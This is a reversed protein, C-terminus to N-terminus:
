YDLYVHGLANYRTGSMSPRSYGNASLELMLSAQMSRGKSRSEQQEMTPCGPPRRQSETEIVMPLAPDTFHTGNGQQMQEEEVVSQM